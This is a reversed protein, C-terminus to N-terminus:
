SGRVNNSVYLRVAMCFMSVYLCLLECVFTTICYVYSRLDKVYDYIVQDLRAEIMRIYDDAKHSKENYAQFWIHMVSFEQSEYDYM